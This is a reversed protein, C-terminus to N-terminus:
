DLQFAASSTLFIESHWSIKVLTKYVTRYSDLIKVYFKEM